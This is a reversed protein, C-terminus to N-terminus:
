SKDDTRANHTWWGFALRRRDCYIEGGKGKVVGVGKGRSAVMNNDAVVVNQKNTKRPQENTAKLKM